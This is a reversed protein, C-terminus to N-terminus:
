AIWSGRASNAWHTCAAAATTPVTICTSCNRVTAGAGTQDGTIRIGGGGAELSGVYVDPDYGGTITFGDLVTNEFRTGDPVTVVNTYNDWNRTVPLGYPDACRGDAWTGGESQCIEQTTIVDNGLADGSLVSDTAADIVYPDPDIQTLGREALTSETGAFGGYISVSSKLKFTGRNLPVYLGRAVWIQETTGSDNDTCDIAEDLYQFATAWTGGCMTCSGTCTADDDVRYVTQAYLSTALGLWCPFTLRLRLSNM